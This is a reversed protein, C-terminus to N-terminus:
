PRPWGPRCVRRRRGGPSLVGHGVEVDGVLGGVVDLDGRHVGGEAAPEHDHPFAASAAIPCLLLDYERFFEAWAFRLKQRETHYRWWERHFLTVGRDVKAHYSNDEESRAAKRALFQDFEEDSIDKGTAARLLM